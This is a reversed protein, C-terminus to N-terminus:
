QPLSYCVTSVWYTDNLTVKECLQKHVSIQLHFCVSLAAISILERNDDSQKAIWLLEGTTKGSLSLM